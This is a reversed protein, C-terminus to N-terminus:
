KRQKKKTKGGANGNSSPATEIAPKAKETVPTQGGKPLTKPLMKRETIGWLSSAIFYLCLGSAVKFFMFGMFVMMYKMMKQQMATQEDTPPPMFMKQQWLFLVITVLPLVNLYPGLGFFGQGQNIFAPMVNSWNLLMDPAALNSCWRVADSILPADRLEVDVMLSRYLGIFIPLQLFMPLCGALPNYNNKRFLEMQARQREQPNGKYKEALAKIQPQLEQMKQASIAQKRSIPFMAGRVLVTLMIIAIGYNPLIWYFGHLVRLMPKAVWGFWGYYVLDDLSAPSAPNLPVATYQELIAPRKPGAFFRYKHLLEKRAELVTPTSTLRFSVNTKKYDAKEKPLAGVRIPRVETFWVEDAKQKLPILAAAFYQGDVAIYDLPTELSPIEFEDNAIQTCTKEDPKIGNFRMVVDRLGATGWTRSVKNAYWAGEAPLGTPGDLQYAITRAKEGINRISVSVELHYSADDERVPGKVKALTFHKTLELNEAALVKKFTVSDVKQDAVEWTSTWLDIGKLEKGIGGSEPAALTRDDITQLTLLLSYPDHKGAPVFDLPVTDREPNVVALQRWILTIPLTKRQNDRMVTVQIVRNPKTEQLYDDFAKGSTIPKEDVAVIVDGAQMGALAAPTGSGVIRVRAGGLKAIDELALHGAYGSRDDVNRYKPSNLEIREVAAGVNTLTVLMQYPSDPDASGLSIWTPPAAPVEPNAVAVEQANDAIPGEPKEADDTAEAAADAKAKEDGNPVNQKADEAKQGPQAEAAAKPKEAVPQPKAPFFWATILGHALFVVLTIALWLKFRKDVFGGELFWRISGSNIV